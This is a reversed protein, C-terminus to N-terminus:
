YSKRTGKSLLRASRSRRMLTCCFIKPVKRLKAPACAKQRMQPQSGHGATGGPGRGRFRGDDGRRLRIGSTEGGM